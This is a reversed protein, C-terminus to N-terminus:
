SANFLPRCVLSIREVHRHDTGCCGGLVNIHPFRRLVAGYQAGLEEPNGADLETANDLEAHSRCSSNARLGRLRKMWAADRELVHEFHTPHACNIMYYAPAQGTAVDLAEIAEALSDGAPLRGNTEVTFSIVCPIEAAQAARAVGLPQNQENRRGIRTGKNPFAKSGPKYGVAVLDTPRRYLPVHFEPSPFRSGQVVPEYYGTLFGQKEGLRAIRVPQFNQEFFTRATNSHQPRLGLAKRCVNWLAGALPRGGDAKRLAQCSIQYAAFAALHDDATWGAVEIWKAPELQSDALKLPEEASAASATLSLIAGVVSALVGRVAPQAFWHHTKM